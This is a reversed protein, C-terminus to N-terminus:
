RRAKVSACIGFRWPSRTGFGIKLSRTVSSSSEIMRSGPSTKKAPMTPTGQCSMARWFACPSGSRRRPRM